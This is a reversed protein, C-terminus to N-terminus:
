ANASIVRIYSGGETKQVVIQDDVVEMLERVHSIIGVVRGNRQLRALCDMAKDLANSDLTAFGEDIFLTDLQIGGSESQVRDSLGLAMALAAMFTEGGSLSAAPREKGTFDDYVEISLGRGGKDELQDALVLHYRSESMEELFLNASHLIDQLYASLIYREFSIKPCDRVKGKVTDYLDCAIRKKHEATKQTELIKKIRQTQDENNHLKLSLEQIRNTVKTQWYKYRDLAVQHEALDPMERGKLEHELATLQHKVTNLNEDYRKVTQAESDIKGNLDATDFRQYRLFADRSLANASLAQDFEAQDEALNADAQKAEQKLQAAATKFRVAEKELTQQKKRLTDRRKVADDYADTLQKIKRNIQVEYDGDSAVAPLLTALDKRIQNVAGTRQDIIHQLEQQKEFAAQKKALRAATQETRRALESLKHEIDALTQDLKGQKAEIARDQGKLAAKEANVSDLPSAPACNEILAKIWDHHAMRKELVHQDEQLEQELLDIQVKAADAARQARQQEAQAQRLTKDTADSEAFPAPHPHHVAGCVPCPAGDELTQALRGAANAKLQAELSKQRQMWRDAAKLATDLAARNTQVADQRQQMRACITQLESLHTLRERVEKQEGSNQLQQQQLVSQDKRLRNEETQDKAMQAEQREFAEIQASLKQLGAHAKDLDERTKHFQALTTKANSFRSLQEQRTKLSQAFDESNVTELEPQLAAIKRASEANKAQLDSLKQRTKEAADEQRKLSRYIPLIQLIQRSQAIWRRRKEMDTQQAKLTEQQRILYKQQEFRSILTKDSEIQRNIENINKSFGTNEAELQSKFRQAKATETKLKSLIAEAPANDEIMDALESHPKAQLHHVELDLTQSLRKSAELCAQHHREVQQEFRKYHGMSFLTKLLAERESDKARLLQSFRGQPLMVIQCFQEANLGLIQQIAQNCSTVSSALLKVPTLDADCSWLAAEAVKSILRTNQQNYATQRPQRFIKYTKTGVSFIFSVCCLEGTGAFDSKITDASRDPSGTKGYLAYCIGDFITSKGSGTPGSILFLHNKLASFDIRQDLFPGFCKLHLKIPRM